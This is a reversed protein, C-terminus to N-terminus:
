LVFENIIEAIMRNKKIGKIKIGIGIVYNKKEGTELDALYETMVGVVKKGSIFISNSASDLEAKKGTVKEIATRVKEGISAATMNKASVDSLIISMYIGGEPSKFSRGGHGIGATQKKAIIIEKDTLGTIIGTLATRNTSELEDYVAIRDSVNRNDLYTAIGQVSIIDCKNSLKYGRRPVAEIDYGAERLECVAKWVASRTVGIDGTLKSGPVFDGRNEELIRLVTDKASKGM